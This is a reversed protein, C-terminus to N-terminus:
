GAMAEASKGKERIRRYAAKLQASVVSFTLGFYMFFMLFGLVPHELYRRINSKRYIVPRFFYWRKLMEMFGNSELRATSEMATFYGKKKSFINKWTVQKEDHTVQTQQARRVIGGQKIYRITPQIEEFATQRSNLGGSQKYAGTRWFRAAEISNKDLDPGADNLVTREFIKVRTWINNFDSVPKEPVVLAGCDPEQEFKRVCTEICNKELTMDSDIFLIYEPEYKLAQEISALRAIGREGHPLRLIEVESTINGATRDASLYLDLNELTNDTSGDDSIVVKIDSYTQKIISDLCSVAHDPNNYTSFVVAVCGM